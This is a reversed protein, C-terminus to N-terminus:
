RNRRDNIDPANRTKNRRCLNSSRLSIHLTSMVFSIIRLTQGSSGKGNLAVQGNTEGINLTIPDIGNKIADNILKADAKVRRFRNELASKTCDGGFRVAIDPYLDIFARHLHTSLWRLYDLALDVRSFLKIAAATTVKPVLARLM